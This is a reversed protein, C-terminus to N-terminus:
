EGKWENVVREREQSIKAWEELITRREEKTTKMDAFTNLDNQQQNLSKLESITKEITNMSNAKTVCIYM